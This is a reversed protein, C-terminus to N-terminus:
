EEKKEYMEFEKWFYGKDKYRGLESRGGCGGCVIKIFTYGKAQRPEVSFKSEDENNCLNCKKRPNTIAFVKQMALMEEEQGNGSDEIQYTQGAIKFNGKIIM